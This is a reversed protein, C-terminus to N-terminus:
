KGTKANAVASRTIKAHSVRKEVPVKAKEPSTKANEASTRGKDAPPKAREAPPKIKERKSKKKAPSEVVADDTPGDDTERSPGLNTTAQDEDDEFEGAVASRPHEEVEVTEAVLYKKAGRRRKGDSGLQTAPSIKPATAEDHEARPVELVPSAFNKPYFRPNPQSYIKISGVSPSLTRSRACDPLRGSHTSYSVSVRGM